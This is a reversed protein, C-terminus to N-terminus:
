DFRLPSPERMELEEPSLESVQVASSQNAGSSFSTGGAERFGGRGSINRIGPPSTSTAPAERTQNQWPLRAFDQKCVSLFVLRSFQKSLCVNDVSM